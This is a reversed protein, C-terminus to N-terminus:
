ILLFTLDHNKRSTDKQVAAAYLQILVLIHEARKLSVVLVPPCEQESSPCLYFVTSHYRNEDVFKCFHFIDM